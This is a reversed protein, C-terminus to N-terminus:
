KYESVNRAKSLRCDVNRGCYNKGIYKKGNSKDELEYVFGVWSSLEDDTPEFIKNNYYWM